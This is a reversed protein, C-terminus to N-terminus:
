HLLCLLTSVLPLVLVSLHSTRHVFFLLVIEVLMSSTPNEMIPISDGLFLYRSDGESVHPSIARPSGKVTDLSLIFTLGDGDPISLSSLIDVLSVLKLLLPILLSFKAVFELTSDKDLPIIFSYDKDIHVSADGYSKYYVMSVVVRSGM